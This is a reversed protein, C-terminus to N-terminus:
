PNCSAWPDVPGASYPGWNSDGPFSASVSNDDLYNFEEMLDAFAFGDFAIQEQIVETPNANVQVSFAVVGSPPPLSSGNVHRFRVSGCYTDLVWVSPSVVFQQEPVVVRVQGSSTCNGGLCVRADFWWEGQTAVTTQYTKSGTGVQQVIPGNTTNARMTWTISNYSETFSTSCNIQVQGNQWSGHTCTLPVVAPPGVPAATPVPTPSGSPTPTVPTATASPFNVIVAKSGTTCVTINCATMEINVATNQTFTTAFSTSGPAVPAPLGNISWRTTTYTGTVNGTCTIGANQGSYAVDCAVQVSQPPVPTPLPTPTATPAPTRTEEQGPTPTETPTEVDTGNGGAGGTGGNPGGGTGGPTMAGGDPTESTPTAGGTLVETVVAPNAPNFSMSMILQGTADETQLAANGNRDYSHISVSSGGGGPNVVEIRYDDATGPLYISTTGAGPPPPSEICTPDRWADRSDYWAGGVDEVAPDNNVTGVVQGASNVVRVKLDKPVTIVVGSLDNSPEFLVSKKVKGAYAAYTNRDPYYPDNLLITDGNLGVAAVFHGPVELVVPRGARLQERVEEESGSGFGAFRITTTGPRARAIQGSLENASAWIVDGYIYGKSVWGRNTKRAEENFWANVAEPTLESGDPMTVINFIAMVTTVSTMACGCQEITTGCWDPGFEPDGARAYEVKAWSPHNQAFLPAGSGGSPIFIPEVVPRDEAPRDCMHVGEYVAEAPSVAAATDDKTSWPIWGPMEDRYIWSLWLGLGIAALLLLVIVPMKWKELPPRVALQGLTEVATSTGHVPTANVRFPLFFNRGFWQRKTRKIRLPVRREEGPRLEISPQHFGFLFTGEDDSGALNYTVVANGRNRAILTFDRKSRVPTLSLDTADFPLVVLKGFAMAERDLEGSNVVVGFDYEGALSESSTPPQIILTITEQGGPVLAFTPQSISVWQPPVGTVTVNLLDVINGRNHITATAFVAGGPEVPTAPSVVSVRIAASPAHEVASFGTGNTSVSESAEATGPPAAIFEVSVDGFRIDEPSEVLNSTHPAIRHGGVFTGAASGLDEIMLRGSEIILRAHRRSISLDDILINSGDARGVVLSPLDIPFEKAEGDPTRVQLSGFKM